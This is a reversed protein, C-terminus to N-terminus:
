VTTFTISHHGTAGDPAASQSVDTQVVGDGDTARVTLQHDGPAVDLTIRWQVWADGSLPESLEAPQWPGDDLRVETAVIGKGPARAPFRARSSGCAASHWSKPLALRM